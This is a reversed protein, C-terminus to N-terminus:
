SPEGDPFNFSGGGELFMNNQGQFPMCTELLDNYDNIIPNIVFVLEKTKQIGDISLGTLFILCLAFCIISFWNLKVRPKFLFGPLDNLDLKQLEEENEKM